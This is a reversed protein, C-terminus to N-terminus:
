LSLEKDDEKTQSGNGMRKAIAGVARCPLHQERTLVALYADTFSLNYRVYWAFTRRLRGKNPIRLNPMAILVLISQAINPKTMHYVSQLVYATEFLVLENTCAVLEARRIRTLYATARPSHSPHDQRIHRVFVNSDILPLRATM